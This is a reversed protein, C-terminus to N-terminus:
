SNKKTADSGDTFEGEIFAPKLAPKPLDEVIEKNMMEAPFPVVVFKVGSTKLADLEEDSKNYAGWVRLGLKDFAQVAVGAIKDSFYTRPKGEADLLPLGTEKDYLPINPDQSAIRVMNDFMKRNRSVDGRRMVGDPGAEATMCLNRLLRTMDQTKPMTKAQKKFKGGEGRVIKTPTDRRIVIEESPKPDSPKKEESDAV